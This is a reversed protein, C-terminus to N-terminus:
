EVLDVSFQYTGAGVEFVSHSNEKKVFRLGELGEIGEGHERIKEQDSTPFYVLATTNGPVEVTWQLKDKGKKWSSRIQGYASRHAGEVQMLPLSFDPKMVIQKFGPKNAKIGILHEYYWILLDGLLMVHNQSNMSPNATDGNWLEWITTAGKEVMYGWSPYSTNTALQFALDARGQNSLGRMLYQTGIVGTSIHGKNEKTIKTVINEFVQKRYENPVMDFYLPLLNATVTNNSYQGLSKNLYKQNFAEKIDAAKAEFFQKDVENNVIDAFGQMLRLLQYYSASALLM